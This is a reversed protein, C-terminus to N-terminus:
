IRQLKVNILFDNLQSCRRSKVLFLLFPFAPESLKKLADNQAQKMSLSDGAVTQM